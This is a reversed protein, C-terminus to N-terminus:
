SGFGSFSGEGPLAAAAPAPSAARQSPSLDTRGSRGIALELGEVPVAIEPQAVGLAAVLRGDGRVAALFVRM